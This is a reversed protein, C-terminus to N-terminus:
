KASLLEDVLPQADYVNRLAEIIAASDVSVARAQKDTYICDLVLSQINGDFIIGVFEGAKNVVPSGSSGGIIDADSVFNYPTALALKEKKDIWRQPLDFPAKNQHEAAREFMGQFNTFAPVPKGNEEYGRVTGYSLRLTFTADPYNSTGEIAFRAKAIEAYAQQKIEEQTELAKKATRATSDITRALDIMPDHAAELAAKGGAYLKKRIAVDRVQTGKILEFARDHPSKDGLVTKQVLPHQAGFANALDTLSDTLTLLEVDDYIPETSFLELELSERNSDRFEQFRENNPKAREDAARVLLRAYKFLTSYFARPQRYIGFKAREQEFYSYMLANKAIEQQAKEIRDYASTTSRLKADASMASRLKQERQQLAQWVEPDLLGAVYGDYRKRNNQVGFFDDRVRRANEFSREGFSHFLVERRKFISLFRPLERDRMDALEDLTLQRDTKGPHGSVFTLEGDAPGRASFKLYNDIKAPQGNEYARFLCVDLDYRPYEFNDPDGGYFAIKEEPAFVVRVDDYRKFRYLHYAGGQYLTVVNSRLGTKDKSEKEITAIAAKRADAAKESTMDAKVASNVRATVDEISMLVNLELDVCKKEEDRTRAYFGDRLYNHQQDSFKQLADAGVHHNTIALGNASVFSGSGGSSFRVSSKQLHDLWQKTPEFNYKEKLQKLPPANYLWMGEDGFARDSPAGLLISGFVAFLSKRM